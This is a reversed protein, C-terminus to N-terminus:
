SCSAATAATSTRAAARSTAACRRPRRRPRDPRDAGQRGQRHRPRAARRPRRRGERARGGRLRAPRRRLAARRARPRAARAARRRGRRRDAARGRRGLADAAAQAHPAAARARRGPQRRARRDAAPPPLLHARRRHAPRHTAPSLGDARLQATYRELDDVRRRRSRSASSRARARRPRAPLRRGHAAVRRAALLALFAEVERDPTAPHARDYVRRLRKADVHSYIQTTSLSSHGLLEQIVRLDAGGELLHTAFAHRLRHPHPPSAACRRPTSGAAAPRSSSRTRPAARSSRAAGRPPLARALARGGRRAPRRAGERGQREPRPRAGARLRRRALDLGVAEASRLGASYVLELSRATASRSRGRRRRLADLLEDVEGAKPADPLRRPRPAARAPDDPVHGRGLSFRLLSRVAALRRAITAPALKGGPRARGLDATYDSLSASTSAARAAGSATGSPSTACTPAYARRTAESIGAAALYREIASGITM